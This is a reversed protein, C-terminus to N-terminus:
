RCTRERKDIGDFGDIAEKLQAASLSRGTEEVDVWFRTRKESQRELVPRFGLKVIANLRTQASAEDDYVGLLVMGQYDGETVIEAGEVKKDRLEKLRKQASRQDRTVDIVWYKMDGSVQEEREVATQGMGVLKGAIDLADARLGFPGLAYCNRLEEMPQERTPPAQALETARAADRRSKEDKERAALTAEIRENHRAEAAAVQKEVESMSPVQSETKEIPAPAPARETEKPKASERGRKSKAANGSEMIDSMSKADANIEHLLKISSKSGSKPASAQPQPQSEPEPSQTQAWIFFAINVFLLLVFALKM